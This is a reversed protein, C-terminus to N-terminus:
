MPLHLTIGVRDRTLFINLQQKNSAVLHVVVLSTSSDLTVAPSCGLVGLVNLRGLMTVRSALIIM